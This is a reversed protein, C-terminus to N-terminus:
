ETFEFRTEPVMFRGQELKFILEIQGVPGNRNKKIFIDARDQRETDPEYYSERYLMLVVDADQEISGSERLDSLQPQKNPRQEVSRSLQSLAIVPVQLESALMKLSRSIESIEQVRNLPNNGSMLQLYDIVILDIGQEMQLRRAKSKLEASTLGGTDDFFIQAESLQQMAEGMREFDRDDLLGKQLKYADVQLHSSFLRDVLQEKPMELSFFGVIKKQQIAFNQVINLAFASKGMSPRAAIIILEGPKLGQTYHDLNSFGYSIGRMKTKDDSDHLECFEEYRKNLIDRIHVFNKKVFTQTVGFLSKEAKELVETLEKDTEFSYATIEQGCRLLNRLVSKSKVINAYQFVNASSPCEFSLQTIYAPGGVKDLLNHDKLWDSVTIVDIPRHTHFLAVMGEYIDSHMSEYFDSPQLLDAIKFIAEKDLLCAGLVSKEAEQSHPPIRLNDM